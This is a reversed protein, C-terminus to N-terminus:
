ACWVCTCRRWSVFPRFASGKTEGSKERKERESEGMKKKGKDSQEGEAAAYWKVMYLPSRKPFLVPMLPVVNPMQEQLKAKIGKGITAKLQVTSSVNEDQTFRAALDNPTHAHTHNHTHTLRLNLM